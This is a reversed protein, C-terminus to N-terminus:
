VEDALLQRTEGVLSSVVPLGAALYEIDKNPVSQPAGAAYAALGIDAAALAARLGTQDLWGTFTVNDLGAAYARWHQAREGDGCILFHFRRTADGRVCRACDLVPALDYTRGLTGAFLCVTTTDRIGFRRRIALGAALTDPNSPPLDYALPFVQDDISAQRREAGERSRGPDRESGKNAQHYLVM